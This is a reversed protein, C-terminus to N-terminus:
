LVHNLYAGLSDPQHSRYAIYGDPRVLCLGAQEVGYRDRMSRRPDHIWTVGAPAPHDPPHQCVLYVDIWHGHRGSLEEALLRLETSLGHDRDDFLILRHGTQGFMGYLTCESGDVAIGTVDPAQTGVGPRSGSETALCLPSRGYDLDLEEFSRRARVKACEPVFMHDLMKKRQDPNLSAFLEASETARRTVNLVNRAVQWREQQYTDLWSEPVVGRIVLALKWALNYADQIGTNMGHGAILSHVHAADGALFTRGHRYHPSQRYHIRFWTLWRPDSVRLDPLGRRLVLDQLWELTPPQSIDTDRPVNAVLQRRGEDLLFVFLDGDDHLFTYVDDRALPGDLLVDALLYPWPDAKGPFANGTLRRVMSHAGDCGILWPTECIEQSGAPLRLTARVRQENQELGTLETRREVTVGLRNLHRQLVAETKAQSQAIGGPIPSDVASEASRGVFVGNAFINWGALPQGGAMMEEAFSLTHFIELTRSHLFTARCHPDIGDSKDIIRVPIGHRALEAAMMLGTTRGGVVLVPPESSM